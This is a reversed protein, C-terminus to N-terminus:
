DEDEEIEEEQPPIVILPEDLGDQNEAEKLMELAEEKSVKYAEMIYVYEAIYGDQMDIRLAALKTADDTMIDDDFKVDYELEEVNGSFRSEEAELFMIAKMMNVLVIKLRNINKQRNRFTDSNSAIVNMENQYGVAGNEFSYYNTGLMTKSSLVNLEFQIATDHQASDYVPAYVEIAKNNDNTLGRLVQFQTEDPDFYKRKQLVGNADKYAMLKTAEEDVFIKKRSNISDMRSSYNKEDINELTGISNAFASIGMPSRVDYNNSIGLKFAQFHPTKTEYEVYYEVIEVNDEKRVHRMKKLEADSFIAELGDPKGLGQANKSSYMEHQIRYKDDNFTHYMVHNYKKGDKQFDQVVAVAKITTNEYDIVVVKDGFLFNLKTNGNSVYEVSVGTGYVCTLEVFNAMEDYFNNDLLVSDLVDQAKANGSVLLEVKENFLLSTIDESVKKAMQLSPKVVKITTGEVNKKMTNHFGDVNGRYWNVWYEQQQYITGIVPNYGRDIFLKQLDKAMVENM